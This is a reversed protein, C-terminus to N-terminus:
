IEIHYSCELVWIQLNSVYGCTIIISIEYMFPGYFIMLMDMQIECAKKDLSLWIQTKQLSKLSIILALITTSTVAVLTVHEM